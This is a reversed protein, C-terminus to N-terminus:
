RVMRLDSTGFKDWPALILIDDLSCEKRFAWSLIKKRSKAAEPPQEYRKAHTGKRWGWLSCMQGFEEWIEVKITREDAEREMHLVQTIVNPWGLYNLIIEEDWILRRVVKIGDAVKEMYGLMNLPESSYSTSMKLPGKYYVVGVIDWSLFKLREPTHELCNGIGLAWAMKGEM